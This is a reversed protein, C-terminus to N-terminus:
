WRWAQIEPLIRHATLDLQMPTVSAYGQSLAGIDTGEDPVGAEESYIYGCILCMWTKYQQTTTTMQFTEIESNRYFQM